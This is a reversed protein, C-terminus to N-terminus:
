SKTLQELLEMMPSSLSVKGVKKSSKSSTQRRGRPTAEGKVKRRQVKGQAMVEKMMPPPPHHLYHHHRPLCLHRLHLHHNLPSQNRQVFVKGRRQIEMLLLTLLGRKEEQFNYGQTSSGLVQGCVKSHIRPTTAELKTM